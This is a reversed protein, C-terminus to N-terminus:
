NKDLIKVAFAFFGVAALLFITIIGVFSLAKFKEPVPMKDIIAAHFRTGPMLTVAAFGGVAIMLLSYLFFAILHLMKYYM